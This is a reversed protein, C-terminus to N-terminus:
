LHPKSRTNSHSHYLVAAATALLQLESIVGLRPVKMHRQQLRFLLFLQKRRLTKLVSSLIRCREHGSWPTWYGHDTGAPRLILSDASVWVRRSGPGKSQPVFDRQSMPKEPRLDSKSSVPEAQIGVASLTKTSNYGGQLTGLYVPYVVRIFCYSRFVM